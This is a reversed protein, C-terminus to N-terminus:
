KMLALLETDAKPKPDGLQRIADFDEMLEPNSASVAESVMVVSNAMATRANIQHQHYFFVCSGLAVVTTAVKPVWNWVLWKSSRGKQSARAQAAAEQEVAQLVRATFNSTLPADPLQDLAQNLGLELEWEAQVEPHSALHERMQAEETEALRRQWSLERLRQYVPDNM